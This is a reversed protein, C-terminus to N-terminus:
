QSPQSPLRNLIAHAEETFRDSFPRRYSPNIVGEEEALKVLDEIQDRTYLWRGHKAASQIRPQCLIGKEELRRITVVARNLALALSGRMFFEVNQGRYYMLKPRVDWGDMGIEKRWYQQVSKEHEFV